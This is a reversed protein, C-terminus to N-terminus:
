AEVDTRTLEIDPRGTRPGVGASSRLRIRVLREVLEPLAPASVIDLEARAREIGATIDEVSMHPVFEAALRSTIEDAWPM